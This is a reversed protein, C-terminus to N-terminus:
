ARSPRGRAGGGSAGIVVVRTAAIKPDVSPTCFLNGMKRTRKPRNAAAISEPPARRLPAVNKQRNQVRPSSGASPPKVRAGQAERRWRGRRPPPSMKQM